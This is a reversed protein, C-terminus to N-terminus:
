LVRGSMVRFCLYLTFANFLIAFIGVIVSISPHCEDTSGAEMYAISSGSAVNDLVAVGLPAGTQQRSPM